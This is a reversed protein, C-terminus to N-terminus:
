AAAPATEDRRPVPAPRGMGTSTGTLRAMVETAPGFTAQRGNEVVLVKDALSLMSMRHAIVVVIAGRQKAASIASNLSADGRPDLSANPEDLVLLFPRGYLARALGIRQRQGGSLQLGNPGVPTDYGKPLSLIFEHIGAAKAAAVVEEAPADPDLRAINAALTGEVMDVTQPLYGIFAGRATESWQALTGGDLRIEGESTGTIGLIARALTSKGSGSSGLVLLTEGAALRFDMKAVIPRACGAPAVSVNSVALERCPPPIAMPPESESVLVADLRSLAQRAAQLQRWHAIAHEVPALTRGTLISAAFMIGASAHGEIVLWAGLAVIGMQLIQRTMRSVSGYAATLDALRLQTEVMHDHRLAFLQAVRGGLGMTAMTEAERRLTESAANRCTLEETSRTNLDKSLRETVFLLTVLIAAGALTTAAILPHLAFTALLFLPLWPMDLLTVPGQGSLFGRLQDADRVAQMGDGKASRSVASRAVSALALPMIEGDVARAIRAVLRARLAELVWQVVYFLLMLICLAALTPLSHAPLVRDYVQITFLSGFLAIANVAASTLFTAAFAGRMTKLARTALAPPPMPNSTAPM